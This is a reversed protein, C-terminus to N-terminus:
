PQVLARAPRRWQWGRGCGTLWGLGRYGRCRGPQWVGPVIATGHRGPPRLRDREGALGGVGAQVPEGPKRLVEGCM